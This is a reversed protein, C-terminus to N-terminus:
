TSFELERSSAPSVGQLYSGIHAAPRTSTYILCVFVYQDNEPRLRERRNSVKAPLKKRCSLRSVGPRTPSSLSSSPNITPLAAPFSRASLSSPLRDFSLFRRSASIVLRFRLSRTSLTAARRATRSAAGVGVHGLRRDDYDDDDDDDHPNHSSRHPNTAVVTEKPGM